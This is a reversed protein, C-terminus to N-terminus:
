ARVADERRGHAEQDVLAPDDCGVDGLARLLDEGQAGAGSVKLWLLAQLHHGSFAACYDPPPPTLISFLNSRKVLIKAPSPDRRSMILRNPPRMAPAETTDAAAHSRVGVLGCTVPGDGPSGNNWNPSAGPRHLLFPWLQRSLASHQLLKQSGVVALHVHPGNESTQGCVSKHTGAQKGGRTKLGCVQLHSHPVPKAVHPCSGRSNQQGVSNVLHQACSFGKTPPVHQGFVNWHQWPGKKVKQQADPVVHQEDDAPYAVHQGVPVRHQM